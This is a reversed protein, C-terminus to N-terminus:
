VCGNLQASVYTSVDKGPSAPRKVVFRGAIPLEPLKYDVPNLAMALVEVLTQDKTPAPPVPASTNLTMSKEMVSSIAGFQWAKM